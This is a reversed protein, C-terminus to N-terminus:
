AAIKQLRGILIDGRPWNSIVSGPPDVCLTPLPATMSAPPSAMYRGTPRKVRHRYDALRSNCGETGCQPAPPNAMDALVMTRARMSSFVLIFGSVHQARHAERHRIGKAHHHDLDSLLLRQRE